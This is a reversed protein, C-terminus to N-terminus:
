KKPLDLPNSVGKLDLYDQLAKLDECKAWDQWEWDGDDFHLYFQLKSNGRGEWKHAIIEKVLVEGRCVDGLDYFNSAERDPFQSIDHHTARKLKNIHFM